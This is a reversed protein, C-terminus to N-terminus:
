WPARAVACIRSCNRSSACWMRPRRGQAWHVRPHTRLHASDTAAGTDAVVAVGRSAKFARMQVVGAGGTATQQAVVVPEDKEIEGSFCTDILMLKQMAPIGDLLAEFEEYPLGALAPQEPDIDYTGFYYNSAADTMGHGAAFLVVLDNVGAQVLAIKQRVVVAYDINLLKMRVMDLIGIKAGALLSQIWLKLFSFFILLFILFVIM